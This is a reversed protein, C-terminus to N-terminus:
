GIRGKKENENKRAESEEDEQLSSILSAILCTRKRQARSEGNAALENDIMRYIYKTITSKARQHQPSLKTYITGIIPPSLFVFQTAKLFDQLAMALENQITGNEELTELDYDFSILGFIELLLNHCEPVIDCHVLSNSRARWNSLLKDTCAVILDFQDIIKARRFLPMLISAHRKYQPGAYCYIM